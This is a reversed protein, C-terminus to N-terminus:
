KLLGHTQNTTKLATQNTIIFLPAKCAAEGTSNCHIQESAMYTHLLILYRILMVQSSLDTIMVTIKSCIITWRCYTVLSM